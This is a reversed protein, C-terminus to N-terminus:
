LLRSSGIFNENKKKQENQEPDTKMFKDNELPKSKGDKKQHKMELTFEIFQLTKKNLKRTKQVKISNEVKIQALRVSPCKEHKKCNRGHFHAM